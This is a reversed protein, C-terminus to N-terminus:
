PTYYKATRSLRRERGAGRERMGGPISGGGAADLTGLMRLEALVAVADPPQGRHAVHVAASWILRNDEHYFHAETLHAQAVPMAARPEQLVASLVAMEM